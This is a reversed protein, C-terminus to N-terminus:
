TGSGSGSGGGGGFFGGGGGDDTGAVPQTTDGRQGGTTKGGTGQGGHTTVNQTTDGRQGGTTKGGTGKGGRTTTNPDSDDGAGAVDEEVVVDAEADDRLKAQLDDAALELLEGTRADSRYDLIAATTGIGIAAALGMVALRGSNM